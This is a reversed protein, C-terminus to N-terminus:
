FLQLSTSGVGPVTFTLEGGVVTIQCATNSSADSIFGGTATVIGSSTVNAVTSLGSVILSNVNINDNPKLVGTLNGGGGTFSVARADNFTSIGTVVLSDAEAVSKLVGTLNAGDGFYTTGTVIGLTSVGSVVLSEALINSTRAVGTLNSGDGFYSTANVQSLTAVGVVVLSSTSIRDTGLGTLNRGNGYFESAYIRGTEPELVITSGASINDNFTSLGSIVLSDGSIDSTTVSNSHIDGSHLSTVGTVIGLTSIGTVVLSDSQTNSTAAYSTVTIYATNGISTFASDIEGVYDLAIVTFGAGVYTGELGLGISGFSQVNTLGSGDGSVSGAVLNTIFADDSSLSQVSTIIGVTAVGVVELNQFTQDTSDKLVGILNSGDGYYTAGTVIGLTTVGTNNTLTSVVIDSSNIRNVEIDPDGTLGQALNSLTSIGSFSAYTSSDSTGSHTSLGALTSYGAFTADTAVGANPAYTAIGSLTSYESYIANTAIGASTAYGSFTSVGANPAYTAIGASTSYGSFTSVGSNTSYDSTTSFGSTTAYGAYTANTAIGASTAYGSFTSVGANPAYTAIGSIESYGSYTSNTSTGSSTAYTAIGALSAYTSVGSIESYTSVGALTSYGAFTADTAVGANVAYTATNAIGSTTSFVSTSSLGSTESYGSFTSVGSTISYNSFNAYGSTTSVGSVEAYGAFTADTAVGALPSYFAVTSFVSTSAIGASTAYGSTTSVGSVDSYTSVGALPSYSSVGSTESYTSVGSLPAYTAFTSNVASTATTALTAIGSTESYTSVGALSAYQIGAINTGDGHFESATIIGSTHANFSSSLIGNLSVDATGDFTVAGAEIDGVINFSRSTQLKTADTSVGALQSYTSVGAIYAFTAVGANSAFEVGTIGSGDSYINTAYLDVVEMSTAGTVVGLTSIGSVLLQRAVVFETTALGTIQSGDGVLTDGIVAGVCEVRETYITGIGMTNTSTIMGLTSVGVVILSQSNINETNALGTITVEGTPSSVSIFDGGVISTVIGSYIETGDGLSSYIEDFNTNIKGGAERLTDGTGDNATTGTNIGLKAM